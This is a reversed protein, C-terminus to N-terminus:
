ERNKSRMVRSSSLFTFREGFPSATIGQLSANCANRRVSWTPSVLANTWEVLFLDRGFVSTPWLRLSSRVTNGFLQFPRSLFQLVSLQNIQEIFELLKDWGCLDGARCIPLHGYPCWRTAKSLDGLQLGSWKMLSHFVKVKLNLETENWSPKWTQKIYTKKKWFKSQFVDRCTMVYWHM